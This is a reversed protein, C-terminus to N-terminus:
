GDPVESEETAEEPRTRVQGSPYDWMVVPMSSAVLAEIQRVREEDFLPADLLRTDVYQAYSELGLVTLWQRTPLSALLERVLEPSVFGAGQEHPRVDPLSRAALLLLRRIQEPSGRQNVDGGAAAIQAFVNVPGSAAFQPLAPLM